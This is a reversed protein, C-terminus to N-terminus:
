KNVDELEKIKERYFKQIGSLECYCDIERGKEKDEFRLSKCTESHEFKKDFEKEIKEIM